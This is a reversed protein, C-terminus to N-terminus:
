YHLKVSNKTSAAIKQFTPKIDLESICCAPNLYLKSMDFYFNGVCLKDVGLLYYDNDLKILKM